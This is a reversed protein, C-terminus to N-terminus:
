SAGPDVLSDDLQADADTTLVPGDGSPPAGESTDGGSEPTIDTDAGPDPTQPSTTM